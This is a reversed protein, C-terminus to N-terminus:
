AAAPTSIPEPVHLVERRIGELESVVGRKELEDMVRAARGYGISLRRQLLSTSLRGESRLIYLAREVDRTLQSEKELRSAEAAALKRQEREQQSYLADDIKKNRKVEDDANQLNQPRPESRLRIRELRRAQALLEDFKGNAETCLQAAQTLTKGLAEIESLNMEPDSPSESILIALEIVQDDTLSFWETGGGLRQDALLQHLSKEFSEAHPTQKAAVIEVRESNSTQHSKVRSLVNTAIGVKYRGKGARLLYVYKM